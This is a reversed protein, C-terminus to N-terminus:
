FILGPSFDPTRFQRSPTQVGGRQGSPAWRPPWRPRRQGGSLRFAGSTSRKARFPSAEREEMLYVGSNEACPFIQDFLSWDKCGSFHQVVQLDQRSSPQWSIVWTKTSKNKTGLSEDPGPEHTLWTRYTIAASSHPRYDYSRFDRLLILNDNPYRDNVFGYVQDVAVIVSGMGRRFNVSRIVNVSIQLILLLIACSKLCFEIKYYKEYQGCFSWALLICMPILTLIGYRISFFYSLPALSSVAVLVVSMWILVFIRARRKMQSVGSVNEERLLWHCSLGVLLFPGMVAGLSLGPQFLNTTFNKYTGVRWVFDMMRHFSAPHWMWDIASGSSGPIFPPLKTLLGKGWPIASLTLVFILIWLQWFRRPLRVFGLYIALILPILKLDAKAKYSLYTAVCLLLWSSRRISRPENFLLEMENWFLYALLLFLFDAIPAFDSLLVQSAMPGPATLFFLSAALAAWKARPGSEAVRLGWLYIMVGLAAYAFDKILFYSWSDYGSIAFCLKFFIKELPRDNFGWNESQTSLPSLWELLLSLSSSDQIKSLWSTFDDDWLPLAQCFFAAYLLGFFFIFLPIRHKTLVRQLDM